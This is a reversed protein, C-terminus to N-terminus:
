FGRLDTDGNPPMSLVYAKAYLNSGLCQNGGCTMATQAVAVKAYLDLNMMNDRDCSTSGVGGVVSDGQTEVAVCVSTM